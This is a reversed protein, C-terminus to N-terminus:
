LDTLLRDIKLSQKLISLVIITEIIIVDYSDTHIPFKGRVLSNSRM